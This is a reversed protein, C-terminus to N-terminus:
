IDPLNSPSYRKVDFDKNNKEDRRHVVRDLAKRENISAHRGISLMGTFHRLGIDRRILKSWEQHAPVGSNPNVQSPEDSFLVGLKELEQLMWQLAGDSLGKEKYGGGVDAHGGPFVMQKVNPAAAWLTPTFLLRQEDLAIAHLGQKVKPSLKLDAFRFTDIIVKDAVNYRPIGMSGVTDWVAVAEINVKIFDTDVLDDSVLNWVDRNLIATTFDPLYNDDKVKVTKRYRYWAQTGLKYADQNGRRNFKQTLLGQSAIMGALARATYAGRSFGIIYIKDGLEYNRSIFTFGRVIRQVLGAGFGGGFLSKIKSKSNGVGNLYKAIQLVSITGDAKDITEAKEIEVVDDDKDKDKKVTSPINRGQLLTFIKFVNTADESLADIDPNVTNWTGDACFIINKAM